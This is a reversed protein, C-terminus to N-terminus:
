RSHPMKRVEEIFASINDVLAEMMVRGKEETAAAPDGIHGYPTLERWEEPTHRLHVRDHVARTGMAMFRSPPKPDVAVAKDLQVLDPRAVLMQSAEIEDAHFLIETEACGLIEERAMEVMDVTFVRVGPLERQIEDTAALLAPSSGSTHGNLLIINRFGHRSLSHVIDRVVAMLTESRLTITGPFGMHHEATSFWIPPAILTGTRAAVERAVWEPIFTDVGLPMHHGHQETSGAPVLIDKLGADLREKIEPWTLDQLWVHQM